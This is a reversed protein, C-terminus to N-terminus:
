IAHFITRYQSAIRKLTFRSAHEISKSSRAQWTSEDDLLACIAEYWSDIITKPVKIAQNPSAPPPPLRLAAEGGIEALGAQDSVLAVSGNIMAELAVRGAAERVVSPMLLLKTEAFIEGIDPTPPLAFLNQCPSLDIGVDHAVQTIADGPLRGGVVLIAQEPHSTALRAALQAM